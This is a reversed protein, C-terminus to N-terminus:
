LSNPPVIVDLATVTTDVAWQAPGGGNPTWPAVTGGLKEAVQQALIQSETTFLFSTRKSPRKTPQGNAKKAEVLEGIRIRGVGVTQRQLTLIPM